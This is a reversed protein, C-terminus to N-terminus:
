QIAAPTDYGDWAESRGMSLLNKVLGECASEPAIRNSRCRHELLRRPPNPRWKSERKARKKASYSTASCSGGASVDLLRHDVPPTSLGVPPPPAGFPPLVDLCQLADRDSLACLPPPSAGPLPPPAGPLLPRDGHLPPPAGLTHVRPLAGFFRLSPADPPPPLCAAPSHLPPCHASMSIGSLHTMHPSAVFTTPVAIPPPPPPPAVHIAKKHKVSALSRPHAAGRPLPSASTLHSLLPVPHDKLCPTLRAPSSFPLASQYHLMTEPINSRVSRAASFSEYPLPTFPDMPNAANPVFDHAIPLDDLSNQSEASDAHLMSFGDGFFRYDEELDGDDEEVEYIDIKEGGGYVVDEEALEYEGDADDSNDEEDDEEVGREAPQPSTWSIYPLFDVDEEAILRPVDTFGEEQVSGQFFASFSIRSSQLQVFRRFM